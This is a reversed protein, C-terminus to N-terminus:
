SKTLKKRVVLYVFKVLALQRKWRWPQTTLRWLWELSLKQFTRPARKQRGAIFDFAGGVGMAVKVPLKELNQAIWKEQRPHGYAVFLIDATPLEYSIVPLNPDKSSFGAVRLAPLQKQLNEATKQAINDKGGLFYISWGKLAAKQCLQIMLDTGTVRETCINPRNKPSPASRNLIKSAWVIGIGDPIALDAGNLIKMFEKDKQATIVFEPNPTVIYHKKGDNLMEEVRSLAKDMTVADIKIGLIDVQPPPLRKTQMATNLIPQLHGVRNDYDYHCHGLVLHCVFESNLIWFGSNM